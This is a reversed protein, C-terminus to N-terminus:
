PRAVDVSDPGAGAGRRRGGRGRGPGGGGPDRRDVGLEQGLRRGAPRAAVRPRRRPDSGPALAQATPTKTPFEIGVPDAVSDFTTDSSTFKEDVAQGNISGTLHFTYVGPQTPTIAADWEGHTGLGTDPDWSPECTSRRAPRPGTSSRSRRAHPPRRPRRGTQRGRRPHLDPGREGGRRLHTRPEVGRGPHLCGGPPDRPGPGPAAALLLIAVAGLIAGGRRLLRIMTPFGGSRHVPHRARDLSPDARRVTRNLAPPRAPAAPAVPRRGPAVVARRPRRPPHPGLVLDQTPGGPRPVPRGHTRGRRPPRGVPEPGGGPGLRCDGAVVAHIVLASGHHATLVRLGPWALGSARVELNEQILYITLQVVLLAAAVPGVDGRRWTRPAPRPASSTAM